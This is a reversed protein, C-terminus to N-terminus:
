EGNEPGKKARTKRARKPKEATGIYIDVQWGRHDLSGCAAVVERV